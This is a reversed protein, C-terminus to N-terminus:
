FPVQDDDAAESSHAENVPKGWEQSQKIIDQLYGPLSKFVDNDGHEIEYLVSKLIQKPCPNKPDQPLIATINAYTKDGKTEHAVVLQCPAGVVKGIEFGELEEPTFDRGRWAKLFTRLNAREMLSATFTRSILFPEKGKEETFVHLSEPTEFSLRIEHKLKDFRKNHQTGLDIVAVCRAKHVGAPVLVRPGSDNAKLLLAM